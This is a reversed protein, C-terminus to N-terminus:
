FPVIQSQEVATLKLLMAQATRYDSQFADPDGYKKMSAFDDLDREIARCLYSYEVATLQLAINM